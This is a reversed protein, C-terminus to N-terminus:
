DSREFSWSGKDKLGVVRFGTVRDNWTDDGTERHILVKRDKVMMIFTAVPSSKNGGLHAKLKYKRATRSIRKARYVPYEDGGQTLLVVHDMQRWRLCDQMKHLASIRENKRVM